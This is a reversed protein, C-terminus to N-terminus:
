YFPVLPFRLVANELTDFRFVNDRLRRKLHAWTKEIPNFDPLYPPLFLLRANGGATKRLAQKRYLSANVM